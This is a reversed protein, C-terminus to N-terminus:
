ATRRQLIDRAVLAALRASRREIDRREALTFALQEWEVPTSKMQSIRLDLRAGVKKKM